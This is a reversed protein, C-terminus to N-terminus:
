AFQFVRQFNRLARATGTKTATGDRLADGLTLAGRRIDMLLWAPLTLTLDVPGADHAAHGGAASFLDFSQGDIVAVYHEDLDGAAARDYFAKISTVVANLPRISTTRDAPELHQMGFRILSRLVPVTSMGAETAVYVTRAAPPPLERTTVLGEDTLAKLRQSLLNPPIGPLYTRLDTFRREGLTLERMILLTWRDGLIDLARAIPCYMQYDVTKPM